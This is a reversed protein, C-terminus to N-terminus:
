TYEEPIENRRKLEGLAGILASLFSRTGDEQAICVVRDFHVTYSVGWQDRNASILKTEAGDLVVVVTDGQPSERVEIKGTDNPQSDFEATFCTTGNM